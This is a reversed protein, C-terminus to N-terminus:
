SHGTGAYSRDKWLPGDCHWHRLASTWTMLLFLTGAAPLAAAWFPSLGYYRLVPVYSAGMLLLSLAALWQTGAHPAFLAAVPLVFAVLMLLTCVALLLASHRLQTFATRAVMDWIPRL